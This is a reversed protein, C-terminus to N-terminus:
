RRGRGTAQGLTRASARVAHLRSVWAARHPHPSFSKERQVLLSRVRGQAGRSRITPAQGWLNEQLVKGVPYNLGRATVLPQAPSFHVIQHGAPRESIRRRQRQVKGCTSPNFKDATWQCSHVSQPCAFGIDMRNDCHGCNDCDFVRPPSPFYCSVAATGGMPVELGSERRPLEAGERDGTALSSFLGINLGVLSRPARVNALTWTPFRDGSNSLSPASKRRVSPTNQPSNRALRLQLRRTLKHM